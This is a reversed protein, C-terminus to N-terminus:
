WLETPHNRSGRDHLVSGSALASAPRWGAPLPMATPRVYPQEPFKMRAAVGTLGVETVESGAATMLELWARFAGEPVSSRRQWRSSQQQNIGLGSLFASVNDANKPRGAHLGGARRLENLM